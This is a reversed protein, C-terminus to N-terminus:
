ADPVADKGYEKTGTEACEKHGEVGVLSRSHPQGLHDLLTFDPMLDGQQRATDALRAKKLKSIAADMSQQLDPPLHKQRAARRAALQNALQVM